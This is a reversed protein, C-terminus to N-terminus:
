GSAAAFPNEEGGGDQEKAPVRARAVFSMGMQKAYELFLASQSRFEAGAPNKKVGGHAPDEVIVEARFMADSARRAALFHRLALEITPGDCRALVGADDLVPVLEEWLSSLEADDQPFGFPREPAVPKVQEALTGAKEDGGVARLHKPLKLPGREGM